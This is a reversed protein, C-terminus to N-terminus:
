LFIRNEAPVGMAYPHWKMKMFLQFVDFGENIINRMEDKTIDRKRAHRNKMYKKDSSKYDAVQLKKINM